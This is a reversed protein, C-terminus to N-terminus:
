PFNVSEELFGYIIEKVKTKKSETELIQLNKKSQSINEIALLKALKKKNKTM